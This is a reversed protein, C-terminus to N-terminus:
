QIRPLHKIFLRPQRVVQVPVVIRRRPSVDLRVRDPQLTPPIPKPIHPAVWQNITIWLSQELYHPLSVAKCGRWRRPHLLQTFISSFQFIPLADHLSLTYIETTATDNFFFFFSLCFLPHIIYSM